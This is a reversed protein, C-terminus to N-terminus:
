SGPLNDFKKVEVSINNKGEVIEVELPTNKPDSFEEELGSHAIRELGVQSNYRELGDPDTPAQKKSTPGEVIVAWHVCVKYKGAAVGLYQGRTRLEAIGEDDTIAGAFEGRDIPFLSISAGALKAGDATVEIRVPHLKPLDDPLDSGSGALFLCVGLLAVVLLAVVSFWKRAFMIKGGLNYTIIIFHIVTVKLYRKRNAAM